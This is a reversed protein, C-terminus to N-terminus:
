PRKATQDLVSAVVQLRSGAPAEVTWIGAPDRSVAGGQADVRAYATRGDPLLPLRVQASVEPPLHATLTFCGDAEQQWDVAIIGNPTPVRGRAWRLGAPEPAILTRQFGAELPRVGLQYASLFYTPAASWAHCHSRTWRGEPEHGPFTEWCTTAGRDLMFGWRERILDLIRQRGAAGRQALAEFTFYMMFPSGVPVFGEPATDITREILARRDLPACDWLAVITNTQQSVVASPTGDRHLCDRYAQRTEDWLLANIATIIQEAAARYTNAEEKRDLLEALRATRRLAEVLWANIHTIFGDNPVDMPAWDLMQWGDYAFLGNAHINALCTQTQQAMRPYIERVFTVDGTVQYFEECALVWLFSWCPLIAKWASPVLAEVMASRDLSEGALLLCRRTLAYDGFAYHNVAGENRSDGVWFTQEYTPCDVFTDEMCLRTTWQGLKWIANLRDDSCAFAGREVVPYTNLVTRISRIRIPGDEILLSLYRCGRRVVSRYTQWGERAIYSMANNMGWCLDRAGDQLSEFGVLNLIAGEAPGEVEFEWYGVTMKGFDILIEVAAGEPDAPVVTVEQNAACLADVNGIQPRGELPEAYAVSLFTNDVSDRIEIERAYEVFPELQECATANWLAAFDPDDPSAFPGYTGKECFSTVYEHPVDIVLGVAWENYHGSLDWLLLNEGPQLMFSFTAGNDWPPGAHPIREIDQGNVRLRSAANYGPGPSRLVIPIPTEHDNQAVAALLGCLSAPDSALYGPLLNRRLNIAWVYDPPRVRRTELVAVPTLPEEILLPIDRPRLSTWPEMGAPGLVTADEWETDDFEPTYWLPLYPEPTVAEMATAPNDDETMNHPPELRADFDEVWGQQCSIRPSGGAYAGNEAVKWTADTVVQPKGDWELQALLGARAPLSQFTGVGYHLVLVALVNHGPKLHASLDYSDYRYHAPWARVPGQGLRKGNVWLVYRTDATIHLVATRSDAGMPVEFARRACLWYNWPNEEGNDWIWAAKWDM